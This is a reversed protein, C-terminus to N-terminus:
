PLVNEFHTITPTSGPKGEVSIADIQWNQIGHLGSYDEAALMRSRKHHTITEEPLAMRSSSLTRVEVFITVGGSEVVLDIEGRPTRINRGIIKYGQGSLYEAAVQEGWQGVHQKRTTM